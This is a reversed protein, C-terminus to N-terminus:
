ANRASIRGRNAAFIWTLFLVTVALLHLSNALDTAERTMLVQAAISRFALLGFYATMRACTPYGALMPVLLLLFAAFVGGQHMLLAGRRLTPWAPVTLVLSWAMASSAAILAIDRTEELTHEMAAMLRAFISFPETLFWAWFYASGEFPWLVASRVLDGVLYALWWDRRGSRWLAVALLCQAAISFAWAHTM